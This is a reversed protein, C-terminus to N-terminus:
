SNFLRLEQTVFRKMGRLNKRTMNIRCFLSKSWITNNQSSPISETSCMIQKFTERGKEPLYVFRSDRMEIIINIINVCDSINKYHLVHAFFHQNNCKFDAFKEHFCPAAHNGLSNTSM